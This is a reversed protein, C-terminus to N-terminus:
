PFADHFPVRGLSVVDIVPAETGAARGSTVDIVVEPGPGIRFGDGEPVPFARWESIRQARSESITGGLPQVTASASRAKFSELPKVAMAPANNGITHLRRATDIFARKVGMKTCDGSDGRVPGEPRHHTQSVELPVRGERLCVLPQTVRVVTRIRHSTKRMSESELIQREVRDSAERWEM